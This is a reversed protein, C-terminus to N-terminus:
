LHKLLQYVLKSNDRTSNQSALKILLDIVHSASNDLNLAATLFIIAQDAEASTIDPSNGIEYAMEYFVTAASSSSLRESDPTAQPWAASCCFITVLCVLFAKRGFM